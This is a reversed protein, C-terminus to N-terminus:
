HAMTPQFIGALNTAWTHISPWDRADSAPMKRLIPFLSFPLGLKEPDFKGGFVQQAVPSLWPFKALEKTLERRAEVFEKEEAHMPGLTFLAVPRRTLEDRHSLLFSRVDKHIHGMYLAFGLVVADYRELTKVGTMPQANVTFRQNLLEDAVAHAVEETSGYRTAWTVLATAPM